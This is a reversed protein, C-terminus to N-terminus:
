VAEGLRLLDKLHVSMVMEDYRERTFGLKHYFGIASVLSQVEMVAAGEENMVTALACLAARGFGRRQHENRIALIDVTVRALSKTCLLLGVVSDAEGRNVIEYRRPADDTDGDDKFIGRFEDLFEAQRAVPYRAIPPWMALAFPAIEEDSIEMPRVIERLEVAVM